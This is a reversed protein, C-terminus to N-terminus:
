RVSNRAAAISNAIVNTTLVIASIMRWRSRRATCPPRIAVARVSQVTAIGAIQSAPLPRPMQRSIIPPM